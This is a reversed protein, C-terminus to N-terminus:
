ESPKKFIPGLDDLLRLMGIFRPTMPFRGPYDIYERHGDLYHVWGGSYGEYHGPREIFLPIQSLADPEIHGPEAMEALRAPPLQLPSLQQGGDVPLSYPAIYNTAAVQKIYAKVFVLAEDENSVQYGLYWWSHDDILDKNEALHNDKEYADRCFPATEDYEMIVSKGTVGYDDHMIDRDVMLRGPEKDLPPFRGEHDTAYAICACWLEWADNGGSARRAALRMTYVIALLVLFAVLLCLACGLWRSKKM